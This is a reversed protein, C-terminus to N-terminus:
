ASEPRFLFQHPIFFLFSVFHDELFEVHVGILGCGDWSKDMLKPLPAVGTRIRFRNKTVDYERQM